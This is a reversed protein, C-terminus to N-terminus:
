KLRYENIRQQLMEITEDLTDISSTIEEISATEEQLAGSISATLNTNDASLVAMNEAIQIIDSKVTLMHKVAEKLVDIEKIVETVSISTSDFQSLASKIVGQSGNLTELSKTTIDNSAHIDDLVKHIIQDIKEVADASEEALKRIEDAVVAFGRGQEGARAAEISANLALLNTQHAISRITENISTIVDSQAAMQTMRETLDSFRHETDNVSQEIQRVDRQSNEANGQLKDGLNGLQTEIADIRNITEDLASNTKSLRTVNYDVQQTLDESKAMNGTNDEIMGAITHTAGQIANFRNSVQDSLRNIESILNLNNERLQFLAEALVKFEGKFHTPITMSLDFNAMTHCSQSLVKIPSLLKRLLLLLIIGIGIVAIITIQLVKFFNDLMQNMEDTVDFDFGITGVVQGQANFAPFYNTFLISDEYNEFTGYLPEGTDYVSQHLSTYDSEVDEYYSAAYEDNPDLGDIIYVFHDDVKKVLYLFTTGSTKQILQFDYKANKYLTDDEGATVLTALDLQNTITEYCNDVTGIMRQKLTNLMSNYTVFTVLSMLAVILIVTFLVIKFVIREGLRLKM